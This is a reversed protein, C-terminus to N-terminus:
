KTLNGRLWNVVDEPLGHWAGEGSLGAVFLTDDAHVHPKLHDRLEKASKHTVVIWNSQMWRCSAGYSKIAEILKDYDTEGQAHLQHSVIYATM